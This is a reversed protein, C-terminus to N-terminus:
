DFCEINSEIELDKLLQCDILDHGSYVEIWSGNENAYYYLVEFGISHTSHSAKVINGDQEIIDFVPNITGKQDFHDIILSQDQFFSDYLKDLSHDINGCSVHVRSIEITNPTTKEFKELNAYQVLFVKDDKQYGISYFDYGFYDSTNKFYILNNESRSFGSDYFKADISNGLTAYLNELSDRNFEISWSNIEPYAIYPESEHRKWPITFRPNENNEIVVTENNEEAFRTILETLQDINSCSLSSLEKKIQNSSEYVTEQKNVRLQKIAILYIILLFIIILTGVLFIKKPHNNDNKIINQNFDFDQNENDHIQHNPSNIM